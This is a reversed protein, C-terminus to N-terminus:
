FIQQIVTNRAMQGDKEQPAAAAPNPTVTNM